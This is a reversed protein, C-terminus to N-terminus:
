FYYAVGVQWANAKGGGNKGILEQLTAGAADSVTVDGTKGCAINYNASVQLHSLVTFGLGVNVSFNSSKLKWEAADKLLSQNKDGVNFGFQPGAFLFVNAVSGLGVGYRVNIPINIAQTKLKSSTEVKNGNIDGKIKAERQDYLASADIGLGVIPLTFKVTPGIFFGAQNETDLLKDKDLSMSTVNLGGKLGFKVQAQANNAGFMMSLAVIAATFLKKM